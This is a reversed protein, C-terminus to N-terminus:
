KIFEKQANASSHVFLHCPRCLLVLNSVDTRLKPHEAFSAVHHVHMPQNPPLTLDHASCRRCRHGDRLFTAAAADKWEQSRYLAQREPTVGGKWNPHGDGHRGKLWHVGDKLYPVHGDAERALRMKERNADTHRHGRFRSPEGAQFKKPAAHGRKRTEIGDSRLWTWVTKGDKGLERAIDNANRGNTVYNEVLWERSPRGIRMSRQELGKCELSCFIRAVTAPGMFLNGCRKCAFQKM